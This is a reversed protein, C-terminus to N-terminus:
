EFPHLVTAFGLGEKFPMKHLYTLPPAGPNLVPLPSFGLMLWAM